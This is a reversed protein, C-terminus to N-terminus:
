EMNPIKFIKVLLPVDGGEEPCSFSSSHWPGPIDGDGRGYVISEGLLEYKDKRFVQYTRKSIIPDSERLYMISFKYIYESGLANEGKTPDYFNPQGWRNFREAALEVREYVKVGGDIACLERVKADWYMKKGFMEWFPWGFWLGFLVIGIGIHTIRLRPKRNKIVRWLKYIVWGVLAWISLLLLLYLGSM